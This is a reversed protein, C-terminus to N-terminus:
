SLQFEALDMLYKLLDQIRNQVTMTNAMDSPNSIYGNWATTWYTDTIQGGLLIDSKLTVKSQDSLPIRFLRNVCDDLLKNPDSPDSLTKAFRIGDIKITIGGFSRGALIMTDSFQNRTPLTDSNIWIEYYQPEQYYPKWGSVDPPDGIDQAMTASTSVLWNWISYNTAYNSAPPFIIGFERCLGVILDVPSKIQSGPILTDFFHESQLLATLVPRIEFDNSRFIAALPTIINAEVTADIDYYVLWRYLCRCIFKPCEDKALIMNLMQDIELDGGNTGTQGKVLTNNYFASFQKDGTDHRKPNFSSTLTTSNNQWGTLVRAAAKVDNETYGSGPGKGVTFLEQLERGYNEDPAAATNYQGNLYVLMGPDTTVEKLLTRFNGLANMRLMSHHKYVFQANGIINTDTAFHNHWFLSMKERLSRDQNVMVGMWWKKFSARRSSNVSGDTNPDNVWTQGLSINSDPTLASSSVTYEKVPPQPLPDPPNLLESITQVLTRTKFYAIDQVQAGFLTRKLLHIIENETWPGKYTNLGSTPPSQM